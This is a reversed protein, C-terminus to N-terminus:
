PPEGDADYEQTVLLYFKVPCQGAITDASSQHTMQRNRRRVSIELGGCDETESAAIRFARAKFM